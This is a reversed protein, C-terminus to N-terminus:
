WDFSEVQIGKGTQRVVRLKSNKVDIHWDASQPVATLPVLIGARKETVLLISEKRDESTVAVLVKSRPERKAVNENNKVRYAVDNTFTISGDKYGTEFVVAAIVGVPPTQFLLRSKSTSPDFVAINLTVTGSQKSGLFGRDEGGSKEVAKFYLGSAPDYTDIREPRYYDGAHVHSSVFIPLLLLLFQRMTPRQSTLASSGPSCYPRGHQADPQVGYSSFM